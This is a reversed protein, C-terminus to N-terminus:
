VEVRHLSNFSDFSMGCSFFIQLYTLPNENLFVFFVSFEAILFCVVWWFLSFFFLAFSRFLHRVLSSPLDANAFISMKM